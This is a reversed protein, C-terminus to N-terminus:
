ALCTISVGPRTAQRSQTACPLDTGPVRLAQPPSPVLRDMGPRRCRSHVRVSFPRVEGPIASLPAQACRRPNQLRRICSVCGWGVLRSVTLSLSHRRPWHRASATPALRPHHPGPCLYADAQGAGVLWRPELLLRVEPTPVASGRSSTATLPMSTEPRRRVFSNTGVLSWMLPRSLAPRPMM